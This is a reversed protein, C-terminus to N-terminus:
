ALQPKTPRTVEEANPLRSHLGGGGGLGQCGRRMAEVSTKQAPVAVPKGTITKRTREM